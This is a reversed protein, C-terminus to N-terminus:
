KDHRFRKFTPFRLSGDKTIEQYQVEITEGIYDQPRDWMKDRVIDTFGSGVKVLVKNFLVIVAGTTGKYKGDGEEIETIELDVTEFPKLKMWNFSRDYDYSAYKNKIVSGEYGAKIFEENFQTLASFSTITHHQVVEINDYFTNGITSLLAVRRESWIPTKSKNVFDDISLIDFVIYRAKKDISKKSYLDEMTKDFNKGVLEGDIIYGVLYPHDQKLQTIQKDLEAYGTVVKGNRTTMENHGYYMFTLLRVGDLKPEAIYDTITEIRKEDFPEALMCDFSKVATFGLASNINKVDIGIRLNRLFIRELYDTYQPLDDKYSDIFSCVYTKNLDCGNPFEKLEHILDHLSDFSYHHKSDIFSDRNKESLTEKSIGFKIYPSLCDNMFDTFDEKYKNYYKLCVNKKNNTGTALSVDEMFDLAMQTSYSM